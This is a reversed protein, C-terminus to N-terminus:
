PKAERNVFLAIFEARNNVEFKQYIKSLHLKATGEAIFLRKGIEKKGLGEKVLLGAVEIERQSLRYEKFIDDLASTEPFPTQRKEAQKKEPLAKSPAPERPQKPFILRFALLMFSVAAIVIYLVRYKTGDPVLPGIVPALFAFVVSFFIATAMGYFWFGGSYHEVVTTTFVVWLTYHAVSVLTSMITNFQPHEEFLPFCSILVFLVIAPPTFWRIFRDISRGALFGLIIVAAAVTVYHPHYIAESSYLPLMRMEIAGNLITFVSALGILRLIMPYNTKIVPEASVDLPSAVDIKSAEAKLATANRLLFVSVAAPTGFIAVCWKICNFVFAADELPNKAVGAELLPVSYYRVLVSGLLAAGLVLSCFRGTRNARSNAPASERRRLWTLYFLGYCMTTLIGEPIAMIGRVAASGLWVRVGLSRTIFEVALLFVIFCVGMAPAKTKGNPVPLFLPCLVAGLVTGAFFFIYVANMAGKSEPPLFHVLTFTMHICLFAGFLSLSSTLRALPLWVSQKM